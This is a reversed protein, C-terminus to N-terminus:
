TSSIHVKQSKDSGSPTRFVAPKMAPKIRKGPNFPPHILDSKFQFPLRKTNMFINNLTAKLRKLLVIQYDQIM